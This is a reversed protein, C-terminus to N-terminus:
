QTRWADTILEYTMQAWDAIPCLARQGPRSLRIAPPSISWGIRQWIVGDIV